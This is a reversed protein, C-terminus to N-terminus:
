QYYINDNSVAMDLGTRVNNPPPTTTRAAGQSIVNSSSVTCSNGSSQQTEQNNGSNSFMGIVKSNYALAIHVSGIVTTSILVIGIAITAFAIGRM